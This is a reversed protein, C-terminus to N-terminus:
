LNTYVTPTYTLGRRTMSLAAHGIGLEGFRGCEVFM